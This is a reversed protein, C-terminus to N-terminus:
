HEVAFGPFTINMMTIGDGQQLSDRHESQTGTM